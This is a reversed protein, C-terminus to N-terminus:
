KNFDSRFRKSIRELILENERLKKQTISYFNNTQSIDKKNLFNYNQYSEALGINIDKINQFLMKYDEYEGKNLYISLKYFSKEFKNLGPRVLEDIQKGEMRGQIVEYFPIEIWFANQDAYKEFFDNIATIKGSRFIEEIIENKRKKIELLYKVGIIIIGILILVQDWYKDLILYLINM